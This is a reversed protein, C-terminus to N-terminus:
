GRRAVEYLLLAAAVAVNLSEAPGRLPIRVGTGIAMWAPDPGSAENGVVIAVPPGVAVRTYEADARADAVLVRTGLAALTQRLVAGDLALVPMRFVAGMTARIVKPQYPDASGPTVAVATAGAALATRVITGINGPDQVRDAVLLVLHPVGLVDGPAARPREALAVIGQSTVVGSAAQVVRPAAEYVRTGARRLRAALVQLHPAAAAPVVLATQVPLGADLVDGILRPGDLLVLDAAAQRPRARLRAFTQVLPHRTSTIM